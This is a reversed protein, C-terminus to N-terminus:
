EADFSLLPISSPSTALQSPAIPFRVSVTKGAAIKLPNGSNDELEVGMMGYSVLPSLEGNVNRSALDGGPVREAFGVADPSLHRKYVKVTGTYPQGGATVIAGAPFNLSGSNNTNVVGGSVADLNGATGRDMLIINVAYREGQKALGGRGGDFYGSKEASVYYRGGTVKVNELVFVGNADATTTSSGVKLVAGALPTDFNDVVTGMLKITIEEGSSNGTGSDDEDKKCAVFVASFVTLVLVCLATLRNLRLKKFM